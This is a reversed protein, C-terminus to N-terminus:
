LVNNLQLSTHLSLTKVKRVDKGSFDQTNEKLAEELSSVTYVVNM